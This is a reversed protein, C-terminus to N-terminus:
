EHKRGRGRLFLPLDQPRGVSSCQRVADLKANDGPTSLQFYVPFRHRCILRERFHKVCLRLRCGAGVGQGEGGFSAPLFDPEEYPPVRGCAELGKALMWRKGHVASLAMTQASAPSKAEFAAAKITMFLLAKELGVAVLRVHQDFAALAVVRVPGGLLREQQHRALFGALKAM